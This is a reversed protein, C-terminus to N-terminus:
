LFEPTSDAYGEGAYDSPIANMCLFFLFFHIIHCDFSFFCFSILYIFTLQNISQNTLFNIM